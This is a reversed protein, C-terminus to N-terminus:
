RADPRPPPSTPSKRLLFIYGSVPRQDEGLRIAATHRSIEAFGVRQALTRIYPSSQAYRRTPLLRYDDSGTWAEVTFAFLGGDRLAGHVASFVPLLDGLYIFVDAALVLDYCDPKSRAAAVIDAQLLDDYVLKGDRTTRRAAHELMRPALDVGLISRASDRFPLATMGTGCGLDLIDWPKPRASQPPANQVADALLMPGRYRLSQFLHRDFRPAYANFLKLLYDPPCCPPAAFPRGARANVAALHYAIFACHPDLRLAQRLADAAAALDGRDELALGLNCHAAADSPALEVARGLSAIGEDTRGLRLLCLGLEHHARPDHPASAVLRQLLAAMEAFESASEHILALPLLVEPREPHTRLAASYFERAQSIRGEAAAKKAATLLLGLDSDAVMPTM